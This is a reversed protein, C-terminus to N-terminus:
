TSKPVIRNLTKLSAQDQADLSKSKAELDAKKILFSDAM